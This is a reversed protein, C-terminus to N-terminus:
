KVDTIKVTTEHQRHTGYRRYGQRRKKKFVVVKDGRGQEVIEGAVKGAGLKEGVMLAELEVKDGAKGELKEIVVEDGKQVRYQKGGTKIVAFM